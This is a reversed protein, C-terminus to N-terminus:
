ATERPQLEHAPFLYRFGLYGPKREGAEGLVHRAEVTYFGDRHDRRIIGEVLPGCAARYTVFSGIQFDTNQDTLINM